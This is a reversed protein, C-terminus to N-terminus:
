SKACGYGEENWLKLGRSRALDTIAEDETTGYGFVFDGHRALADTWEEGHEKLWAIWPYPEQEPCHDLLVGNRKMWALRPSDQPPVDFLMDNMPKM